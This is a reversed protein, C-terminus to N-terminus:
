ARRKGIAIINSTAEPEDEGDGPDDPDEGSLLEDLADVSAQLYLVRTNLDRNQFYILPPWVIISFSMGVFFLFLIADTM